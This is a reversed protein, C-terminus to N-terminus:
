VFAIAKTSSLKLASLSPKNLPYAAAVQFTSKPSLPLEDVCEGYINSGFLKTELYSQRLKPDAESLHKIMKPCFDYDEGRPFLAECIKPTIIM